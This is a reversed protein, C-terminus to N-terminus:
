CQSQRQLQRWVKIRVNIAGPGRNPKNDNIRLYLTTEGSGLTPMFYTAYLRDGIYFYGDEGTKGLLSFPPRWPIPFDSGAPWGTWGNPGNEGTFRVGSWMSGSARIDICDNNRLVINTDIDRDSEFISIWKNVFVPM